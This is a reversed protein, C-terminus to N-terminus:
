REPFILETRHLFLMDTTTIPEGALFRDRDAPDYIRVSVGRSTNSVPPWDLRGWSNHEGFRQRFAPEEGAELVIYPRYGYEELAAIATDLSEGDL